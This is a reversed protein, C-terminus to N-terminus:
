VSSDDDGLVLILNGLHNYKYGGEKIVVKPYLSRIFTITNLFNESKVDILYLTTESQEIPANGSNVINGGVNAIIKKNINAIGSISSGNLVEIKAQERVIEFDTFINKVKNEIDVQNVILGKGTQIEQLYGDKLSIYETQIPLNSSFFIDNYFKLASYKDLNTKFTTTFLNSDIFNSLSSFFTRNNQLMNTVFNTNRSVASELAEDTDRLKLYELLQEGSISDGIKYFRESTKFNETLNLSFNKKIIYNSYEDNDTFIYGDIRVGLVEKIINIFKDQKTIENENINNYLTSITYPKNKYYVVLKPEVVVMKLDNTLKNFSILNIYEAFKNQQDTQKFNIFVINQTKNQYLSTVLNEGSFQPKPLIQDYKVKVFLSLTILLALLIIAVFVRFFKKRKSFISKFFTIPNLKAKSQLLMGRSFRNLFSQLWLPTAKNYNKANFKKVKTQSEKASFGGKSRPSSSKVILSNVGDRKSKRKLPNNQFRTTIM